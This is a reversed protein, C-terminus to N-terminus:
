KFSIRLQYETRIFITIKTEIKPEEIQKMNPSSTFVLQNLPGQGCSDGQKLLKM